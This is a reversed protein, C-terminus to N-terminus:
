VSCTINSSCPSFEQGVIKEGSEYETSGTKECVGGNWCPAEAEVLEEKATTLRTHQDIEELMISRWEIMEETDEERDDRPKNKMDETSWGKVKKKEEIGKAKEGQSMREHVVLGLVKQLVEAQLCGGEARQRKFIDQLKEDEVWLMEMQEGKQWDEDEEEEGSDIQSCDWNQKVSQGEIRQATQKADIQARAKKRSARLWKKFM